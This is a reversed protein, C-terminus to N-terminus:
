AEKRAIMEVPALIGAALASRLNGMKELFTEGMIVALSPEPGDQTAKARQRQFFDLAFAGREREALLSFGAAAFAQRYVEPGAPFSAEPTAAWPLPYTLPAESLRMVDYLAFLGGSRLVRHAEAIMRTKDAINMGVHLLSALAFRGEAFPLDLASAEQFRVREALGVRATLGKATAVFSPTLDIGTVRCDLRGAFFRAPGGIGCGIDLLEGVPQGDLHAEVQAALAESAELGGIHFEDVSALDAATLTASDFGCDTLISLLEAELSPREYHATVLSETTM